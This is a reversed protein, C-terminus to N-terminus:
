NNWNRSTNDVAAKVGDCCFQTMPESQIVGYLQINLYLKGVGFGHYTEDAPENHLM